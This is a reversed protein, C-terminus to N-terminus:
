KLRTGPEYIDTIRARESHKCRASKTNKGSISIEAKEKRNAGLGQEQNDGVGLYESTNHVDQECLARLQKWQRASRACKLPGVHREFESVLSSFRLFVCQMSCRTETDSLDLILLLKGM